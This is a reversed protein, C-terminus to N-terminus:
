REIIYFKFYLQGDSFLCFSEHLINNIPNINKINVLKTLNFLRAHKWGSKHPM